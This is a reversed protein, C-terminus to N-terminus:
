GVVQGGDPREKGGLRPDPGSTGGSRGEGAAESPALDVVVAPEGPDDVPPVSGRRATSLWCGALILAFGLGTGVSFREGLLVVGLVVAVAPNLYTIVTARTSGVEKILEFFAVFALATCVVGLLLVAAVVTGPPLHEPRQWVAVPAYVIAVVTLSVAALALSSLHGLYRSALLPGTAYGVAVLGVLGAAGVDRSGVDLGVLVTVGILGIVLGGLGRRDVDDRHGSLAALVVAILPVTAVLLGSLSSPLRQEADSLLWWPIALEAVTYALLPKWAQGLPRLQGQRVALPLLILAGIATRAEVVTAPSLDGVAVKILLYPLGWVVSMLVFLATGRRTV